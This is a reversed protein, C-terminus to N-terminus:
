GDRRRGRQANPKRQDDHLEQQREHRTLQQPWPDAFEDHAMRAHQLAHIVPRDQEDDIRGEALADHVTDPMLDFRGLEQLECEDVGRQKRGHNGDQGKRAPLEPKRASIFDGDNEASRLFAEGAAQRYCGQQECSLNPEDDDRHHHEM